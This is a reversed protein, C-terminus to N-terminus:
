CGCPPGAAGQQPGPGKFEGLGSGGVTAVADTVAVSGAAVVHFAPAETGFHVDM